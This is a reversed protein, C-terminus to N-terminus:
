ENENSEHNHENSEEDHIVKGFKDQVEILESMASPNVTAEKIFIESQLTVYFPFKEKLGDNNIDYEFTYDYNEANKEGDPFISTEVTDSLSERVYQLLVILSTKDALDEGGSFGVNKDLEQIFLGEEGLWL